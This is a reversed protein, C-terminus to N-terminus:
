NNFRGCRNTKVGGRITFTPAGRGSVEGVRRENEARESTSLIPLAIAHQVETAGFGKKEGPKYEGEGGEAPRRKRLSPFFRTLAGVNLRKTRDDERREGKGISLNHKRVIGVGDKKEKGEAPEKRIGEHFNTPPGKLKAEGWSM